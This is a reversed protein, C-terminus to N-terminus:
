EFCVVEGSRLSILLRGGAASMGDFIPAGDMRYEALQKGSSADLARLIMGKRGEFPAYPDTSDLVDPPGAVFLNRGALVMSRMRIPVWQHWKPPAARTFGMGKDRSWSRYDLMPENDNADATLLYGKEGIKFM